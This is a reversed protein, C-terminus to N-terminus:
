SPCRLSAFVIPQSVCSECAIEVCPEQLVFIWAHQSETGAELESCWSGSEDSVHVLLAQGCCAVM